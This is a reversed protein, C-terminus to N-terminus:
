GSSVVADTVPGGPPSTSSNAAMGHRGANGTNQRPPTRRRAGEAFSSFCQRWSGPIPESDSVLWMKCERGGMIVGNMVSANRPISEGLFALYAEARRPALRALVSFLARAGYRTTIDLGGVQLGADVFGYIYGLAAGNIEGRGDELAFNEIAVQQVALAESM